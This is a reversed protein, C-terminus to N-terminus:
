VASPYTEPLDGAMWPVTKELPILARTRDLHIVADFQEPLRAEFYHSLRETAPRYIVGIARELMPGALARRVGADRLPLVFDEIGVQHFLAEYSGEMARRVLKREAPEDWDTAATVEGSYTTFGISFSEEGWRERVLQGVNLEGRQGMETARADGLHSNHAWVVLKATEGLHELVSGLTEAMHRDRVNWSEVPRGFMARYYMEADRVLRANQEASFVEAQEAEGDRLEMAKRRMEVLQAVVARECSETMGHVAAYGYAQTDEGFHEFCGYRYRARAAAEKDTRDLYRLVAQASSHLSYLDLGYFGVKRESGANWDRLWSAFDVVDMNRWMWAPFRRFDSLAEEVGADGGEGRVWRNLRYADPWDAEVAVGAFGKEEILRRTLRARDRYFEHTGHSAEGILVIRAEGIEEMLRDYSVDDWAIPWCARAVESVARVGGKSMVGPFRM